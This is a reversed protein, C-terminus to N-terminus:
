ALKSVDTEPGDWRLHQTYAVINFVRTDILIVLNHLSTEFSIPPLSLKTESDCKLGWSAFSVDIQLYICGYCKYCLHPLHHM